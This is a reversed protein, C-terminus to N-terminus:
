FNWQIDIQQDIGAWLKDTSVGYNLRLGNRWQQMDLSFGATIKFPFSSLYSDRDRLLDGNILLEGLGARIFFKEWNRWEFGTCLVAQPRELAKFKGDFLYCKMDMTWFLPKDLFSGQYKSALTISPNTREEIQASNGNNLNVSWTMSAGVDKLVAAMTWAKTVQYVFALDLAGIDTCSSYGMRNGDIFTPLQQFRINIGLGASMKRNIYYGFAIKGTFTTYSARELPNENEDYLNNLFPDGRYLLMLGLDLRPPVKFEFAGFADTRGLSRLGIGGSLVRGKHFPMAAPNWWPSLYDPMASNAGAIAMAAAGAWPRLYAGSSGGVTSADTRAMLLMLIAIGATVVYVRKNQWWLKEL